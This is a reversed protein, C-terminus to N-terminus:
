PDFHLKLNQIIISWRYQQEMNVNTKKITNKDSSFIDGGEFSFSQEEGSVRIDNRSSNWALLKNGEAGKTSKEKIKPNFSTNTNELKANVFLKANKTKNEHLNPNM